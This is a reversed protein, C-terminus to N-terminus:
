ALPDLAVLAGDDGFSLVWGDGKATYYRSAPGGTLQSLM